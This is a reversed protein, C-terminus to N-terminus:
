VQLWALFMSVNPCATDFLVGKCLVCLRVRSIHTCYHAYVCSCSRLGIDIIIRMGCQRHIWVCEVCVLSCVRVYMCVVHISEDVKVM